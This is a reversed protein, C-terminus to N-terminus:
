SSVEGVFNLANQFSDLEDQYCQTSSQAASVSGAAESASINRRTKEAICCEESCESSSQYAIGMIRSMETVPLHKNERPRRSVRTLFHPWDDQM